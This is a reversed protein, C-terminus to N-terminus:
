STKDLLSSPNMYSGTSPAPVSSITPATPIPPKYIPPQIPAINM